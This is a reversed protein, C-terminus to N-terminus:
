KLRKAVPCFLAIITSYILAAARWKFPAGGCKIKLPLKM